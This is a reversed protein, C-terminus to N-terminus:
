AKWRERFWGRHRGAKEQEYENLGSRLRQLIGNLFRELDEASAGSIGLKTLSKMNVIGRDILDEVYEEMNNFPKVNYEECVLRYYESIDKLGVYPTKSVLLARVLGLLVLKGTEDLNVIDETTIATHTEGFVRRVHDPLIRDFGMNEALNGSYLLLDLAVRVDGNIPPQATVDSIFELVEDSVKNPKFAASVREELIDKIQESSYRPFKIVTYGLTSLESPELLNYFSLDRAIFLVGLVNCPEGPTMENLRTLDYVVGEKNRKCFYDVEDFSILLYRGENILNKVMQTLMEEPSLSRSSVAPSAKELIRRYLTYRSAGDVKGNVYVHTLPVRRKSAENEMMEGFKTTTCTKGTGVGGVIQVPRLFANGVNDLADRYISFLSEIQKERHPLRDPIYRPSLRSRDKFILSM